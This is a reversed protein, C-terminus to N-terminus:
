RFKEKYLKLNKAHPIPLFGAKQVIRLNREVRRELHEAVFSTIYPGRAVKCVLKYQLIIPNDLLDELQQKTETNFNQEDKSESANSSSPASNSSFSFPENLKQWHYFQSKGNKKGQVSKQGFSSSKNLSLKSHKM